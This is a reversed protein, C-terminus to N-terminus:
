SIETDTYMHRMETTNKLLHKFFVLDDPSSLLVFCAHSVSIALEKEVAIEGREGIGDGGLRFFCSRFCSPLKLSSFITDFPHICINASLLFASDQM